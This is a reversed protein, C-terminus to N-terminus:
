GAAGAAAGNLLALTARIQAALEDILEATTCSRLMRVGQGVWLSQLQANGAAAAARRMERTLANQWPFSLPELGAENSSTIFENEIGRAAKGSFATTIVTQDETARLLAERYAANIGSEKVCLFASGMQVAQAGLALAAIIGRGDMIGGSAIVPVPVADAIQPVLAMTGILGSEAPGAFTARHGGAESGQAIVADVGSEVLLAAERVTTATGIAYIRREKLAQMAAAPLPGLTFSVIPPAAALVAEFQADFDESPRDPVRPAPLGLSLHYNGIFRIAADINGKLPQSALPSFLNVAFPRNTGARVSAIQDTIQQPTLYAAAISGLAGENCAAVVVGPTTPGGGLPAQVVPLKLGHEVCFKTTLSIQTNVVGAERLHSSRTRPTHAPGPPRGRHANGMRTM